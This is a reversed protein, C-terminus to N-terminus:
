GFFTIILDCSFVFYYLDGVKRISPAEFFEHDKYANWNEVSDLKYPCDTKIESAKKCPSYFDGPVIVVPEEEITLMDKGLVTAMAGIRDKMQRGSFGTYLYTKEGETLVGPDFQPM